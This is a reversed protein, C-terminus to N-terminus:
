GKVLVGNVVISFLRSEGQRGNYWVDTISFQGLLSPYKEAAFGSASVIYQECINSLGGERVNLTPDGIWKEGDYFQCGSAPVSTTDKNNNFLWGNGGDLIDSVLWSGSGSYKYLYRDAVVDTDSVTNVQKYFNRERDYEYEGLISGVGNEGTAPGISSIM